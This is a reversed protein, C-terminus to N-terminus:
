AFAFAFALALHPSAFGFGVAKLSNIGLGEFLYLQCHHAAKTCYSPGNPTYAPVASFETQGQCLSFAWFKQNKVSAVSLIGPSILMKRKEINPM